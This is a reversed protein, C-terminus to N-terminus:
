IESRIARMLTFHNPKGCYTWLNNVCVINKYNRICWDFALRTNKFSKNQLTYDTTNGWFISIIVDNKM